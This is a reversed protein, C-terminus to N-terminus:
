TRGWGRFQVTVLEKRVRSDLSEEVEKSMWLNEGEWSDLSNKKEKVKSTVMEKRVGSGTSKAM